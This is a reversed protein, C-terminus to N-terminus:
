FLGFPSLQIVIFQLMFPESIAINLILMNIGSLITHLKLLSVNYLLM